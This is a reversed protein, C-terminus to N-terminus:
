PLDEVRIGEALETALASDPIPEGAVVGSIRMTVRAVGGEAPSEMEVQRPLWTGPLAEFHDRTRVSLVGLAAGDASADADDLLHTYQARGPGIKTLDNTLTTQLRGLAGDGGVRMSGLHSVDFAAATTRCALHEAITGTPYAIPMEWGGFDVLQADLARHHAALPSQRLTM